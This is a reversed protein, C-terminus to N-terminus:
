HTSVGTSVPQCDGAGGDMEIGLTEPSMALYGGKTQRGFTKRVTYTRRLKLEDATLLGRAHLRRPLDEVTIVLPSGTAHGLERAVAHATEVRLYIRRERPDVVGLCPGCPRFAATRRETTGPLAGQAPFEDDEEDEGDLASSSSGVSWGWLSAQPPAAGTPLTVHARKGALAAGVLECFRTTPDEAAKHASQTQALAVVTDWLLEDLPEQEADKLAGIEVAYRAFARVGVVIEALLLAARQDAGREVLRAVAERATITAWSRMDDLHGALWQVYGGMARAYVGAAAMAKEPDLRREIREVDVVVLRSRLSHGAPVTEGTIILTSRPAIGHSSLTGDRSLRQAGTGGYQARVVTDLRENFRLDESSSGSLRFDDYVFVADGVLVRLENLAAATSHKVSAPLAAEGMSPGFHCQALGALMSKGSETSAALYVTLPSPGLPARWVAAFLPFTVEPRAIGFLNFAERACKRRDDDSTPLSLVFRPLPDGDLAVDIDPAAGTATIGGGAHLYTWAGRISRWGTFTYAARLEVPKSLYQIAARLKTQTDRGPAIVAEPGLQAPVWSLSAFDAAPVRFRRPARGSLSAELEYYRRSARVSHEEVDAVIRAGFDCYEIDDPVVQYPGGEVTDEHDRLLFPVQKWGTIGGDHLLFERARRWGRALLMADAWVDFGVAAIWQRLTLKACHAHSCKPLGFMSDKEPPLLVCSGMANEASGDPNSHEKDNICLVAFKGDGLPRGLRGALELAIEWASRVGDQSFESTPSSTSTRPKARVRTRKPAADAKLETVLAGWTSTDLRYPSAFIDTETM